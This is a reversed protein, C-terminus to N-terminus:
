DVWNVTLTSPGKPVGPIVDIKDSYTDKMESVHSILGISRGEARLQTLMNTVQNLREGDLSGFGEDIFFTDISLGGSDDRVIDSLGLALSLSACFSEGGSLSKTSRSQSSDSDFVRLGLGQGSRKDGELESLEFRYRGELLANFRSNAADIVREFYNQLVYTDLSQKFDNKGNAWDSLNKVSAGASIASAREALKTVLNAKLEGFRNVRDQALLANEIAEDHEVKYLDRANEAEAVKGFEPSQPIAKLENDVITFQETASRLMAQQEIVTEVSAIVGKFDNLRERISTRPHALKSLKVTDTKLVKQDSLINAKAKALATALKPAETQLKTSEDDLLVLSGDIQEIRQFASRSTEIEDKISELQKEISETTRSTKKTLINLAAKSKDRDSKRSEAVNRAAKAAHEADDLQEPSVFGGDHPAPAPHQTSGCVACPEGEVLHASLESVMGAIRSKTLESRRLETSEAEAVAEKLAKEQTALQTTLRIIEKADGLEIELKEVDSKLTDLKRAVPTLKQKEESLSKKEAPIEIDLRPASAEIQENIEDIEIELTEINKRLDEVGDEAALNSNLEGVGTNLQNLRSQWDATKGLDIEVALIKQRAEREVQAFREKASSEAIKAQDCRVQVDFEKSRDVWSDQLLKYKEKAQAAKAQVETYELNLANMLVDVEQSLELDNSVSGPLERIADAEDAEIGTLAVIQSVVGSIEATLGHEESSADAALEKLQDKMKTFRETRFIKALITQRESSDAKLFKDFEGQPLLVTQAFQNSTLGVISEAMKNAEVINSSITEWDGSSDRSQLRITANQKTVGEGRSKPRNYAPTRKIRYEGNPTSFTIEVWSETNASAFQSRMRSEDSDAGAAKGYIGFTIADLITSKGAGTPGDILFIADDGLRALDIDFEKAFPGIGEFQIREIRM